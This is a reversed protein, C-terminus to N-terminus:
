RVEVKWVYTPDELLVSDIIIMGNGGVTATRHDKKKCHMNDGGEITFWDGEKIESFPTKVMIANDQDQKTMTALTTIDIGYFEKYYMAVYHVDNIRFLLGGYGFSVWEPLSKEQRAEVWLDSMMYETSFLINNRVGTSFDIKMITGKYNTLACNGWTRKKVDIGQELKELAEKFKM